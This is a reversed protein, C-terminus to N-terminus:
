NGVPKMTGGWIRGYASYALGVGSVIQLAIDTLAAQDAPVIDHGFYKAIQALVSIALGIMVRSQYLPEANSANTVIATVEREIAPSIAATVTQAAAAVEPQRLGNAQSEAVKSVAATVAPQIVKSLDVKAM